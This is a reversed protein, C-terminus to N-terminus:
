KRILDFLPNYKHKSDDNKGLIKRGLWKIFSKKEDMDGRLFEHGFRRIFYALRYPRTNAINIIQNELKTPAKQRKGRYKKNLRAQLCEARKKHFLLQANLEELELQYREQFGNLSSSARQNSDEPTLTSTNQQTHLIKEEDKVTFHKTRYGLDLKDKRFHDKLMDITEKKGLVGSHGSEDSYLKITVQDDLYAMKSIGNLFPILQNKVDALSYMNVIYTLDPIYEEQEFTKIANFRHENKDLLELDTEDFCVKLMYNFHKKYYNTLIIQPNNVMVASGKCLTSLIIAMFGGGSSGFFLINEPSIRRKNASIRIIDAIVLLYWEDNKGVGWGLRLEPDLYLTPDNYYIVSEEFESQWSYRNFIPPSLRQPNYAGSGFCILNNNSSALRVLFEYKVDNHHVELSFLEDLPFEASVLEEIDLIFRRKTKM